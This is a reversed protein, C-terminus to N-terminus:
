RRRNVSRFSALHSSASRPAADPRQASVETALPTLKLLMGMGTPVTQLLGAQVADKIHFELGLAETAKALKTTQMSVGAAAGPGATGADLDRGYDRDTRRRKRKRRQMSVLQFIDRELMEKNKKKDFTEVLAKRGRKMPKVLRGLGPMTIWYSNAEFVDVRRVLLEAECLITRPSKRLLGQPAAAAQDDARIAAESAREERQRAPKTPNSALLRTLEEDSISLATCRPLVRDRFRRLAMAESLKNSAQLDDALRSVLARYDAELSVLRDAKGSNIFYMRLEGSQRAEQIEQDVASRHAVVGYVHHVFAVPIPVLSLEQRHRRMLLRAAAVADSM